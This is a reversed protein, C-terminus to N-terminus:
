LILICQQAVLYSGHPLCRGCDTCFTLAAAAGNRFEAEEDSNEEGADEDHDSEEAYLAKM